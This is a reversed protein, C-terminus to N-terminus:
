GFTSIPPPHHARYCAVWADYHDVLVLPRSANCKEIVRSVFAKRQVFAVEKILRRKVLSSSGLHRLEAEGGILKLVKSTREGWGGTVELVFPEFGWGGKKCQASYKNIKGQEAIGAAHLRRLRPELDDTGHSPQFAVSDVLTKKSSVDIMCRKEVAATDIRLDARMQSVGILIIKLARNFIM